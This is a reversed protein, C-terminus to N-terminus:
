KIDKLFNLQLADLGYKKKVAALISKLREVYQVTRRQKQQLARIKRQFEKRTNVLATRLTQNIAEPSNPMCFDQQSVQCSSSITTIKPEAPESVNTCDNSHDNYEKQEVKHIELLDPGVNEQNASYYSHDEMIKQRKLPSEVNKSNGKFPIADARLRTCALSTRDLFKEEFHLSCLSATESVDNENLQLRDLWLKRKQPEKPIRHFTIKKNAQEWELQLKNKRNQCRRSKCGKVVCDPM